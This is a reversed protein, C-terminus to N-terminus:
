GEKVKGEYYRKWDNYHPGKKWLYGTSKRTVIRILGAAKLRGPHKLKAAKSTMGDRFQLLDNPATGSALVVRHLGTYSM